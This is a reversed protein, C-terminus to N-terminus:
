RECTVFPRLRALTKPGIGPIADLDELVRFPGHRARHDAIRRARSPGIGPLAALDTVSARNLDLRGGFLLAASLPADARPAARPAPAPRSPPPMLGLLFLTALVVFAM